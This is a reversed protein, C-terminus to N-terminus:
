SITQAIRDLRQLPKLTKTLCYYDHARAFHYSSLRIGYDEMDEKLTKNYELLPKIPYLASYGSSISNGVATINVVDIGNNKFKKAISQNIESLDVFIEGKISFNDYGIKSEFDIIEHYSLSPSLFPFVKPM